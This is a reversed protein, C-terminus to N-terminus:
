TLGLYEYLKLLLHLNPLLMKELIQYSKQFVQKSFDASLHHIIIINDWDDLIQKIALWNNGKHCLSLAEKMLRIAHLTKGEYLRALAFNAKTYILYEANNKTLLRATELYNIYKKQGRLIYHTILSNIIQLKVFSDEDKKLMCELSACQEIANDYLKARFFSHLLNRNIESCIFDNGTIYALEKGSLLIRIAQNYHGSKWMIEGINSYIMSLWFFKSSNKAINFALKFNTISSIIDTGRLGQITGLICYSFFLSKQQLKKKKSLDIVSTFDKISNIWRGIFFYGIGRASLISAHLHTNLKKLLLKDAFSISKLFLGKWWTAEVYLAGLESPDTIEKHTDILTISEDYKGISILADVLCLRLLHSINNNRLYTYLILLFFINQRGALNKVIKTFIPSDDVEFTPNFYRIGLILCYISRNSYQSAQIENKWYIFVSQGLKKLNYNKTMNYLSDHPYSFGDHLIIKGLRRFYEIYNNNINFISTFINQNIFGGAAVIAAATKEIAEHPLNPLSLFSIHTTKNIIGLLNIYNGKSKNQCLLVKNRDKIGMTYLVDKIESKSLKPMNYIAIDSLCREKSRSTLVKAIPLEKLFCIFKKLTSPNLHDIHDILLLSHSFTESVLRVYREPDIDLMMKNNYELKSSMSECILNLIINFSLCNINPLSIYFINEENASIHRLFHSKGIGSEGLILIIDDHFLLTEIEQRIRQTRNNIQSLRNDRRHTDIFCKLLTKTFTSNRIHSDEYTCGIDPTIIQVNNNKHSIGKVYCADIIVSIHSFNLQELLSILKTLSISTNNIDHPDTEYSYLYSSENYYSGHGSYYIIVNNSKRRTLSLEKFINSKTAKNDTLVASFSCVKFIGFIRKVLFCDRVCYYLKQINNNHYTNIGICVLASDATKPLKKILSLM